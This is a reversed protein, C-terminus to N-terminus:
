VDVKGKDVASIIERYEAETYLDEPNTIRDSFVIGDLHDLEHQFIRAVFDTLVEQKIEGSATTYEVEIQQYRPVLGRTDPVSLCGEWDQVISEGHALIRPNIMATPSMTPAQPYRDSPHSAIVFIRYPQNIQPAAIGVGQNAIVTDILHEILKVIQPDSVQKVPQAQNRLIPQGLQVIESISM